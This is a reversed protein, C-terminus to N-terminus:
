ESDDNEDSEDPEIVEAQMEAKFFRKQLAKRILKLGVGLVVYVVIAVFIFQMKGNADDISTATSYMDAILLVGGFASYILTKRLVEVSALIYTKIRALSPDEDQPLDRVEARISAVIGPFVAAANISFVILAITLEPITVTPWIAPIVYYIFPLQVILPISRFLEIYCTSIWYGVGHKRNKGANLALGLTVGVVAPLLTLVLTVLFGDLLTTINDM